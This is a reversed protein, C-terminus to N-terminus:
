HGAVSCPSEPWVFELFQKFGNKVILACSMSYQRDRTGEDLGVGSGGAKYASWQPLGPGNPDGSKAFNTWYSSM